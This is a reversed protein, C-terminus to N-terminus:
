YILNFIMEENGAISRGSINLLVVRHLASALYCYALCLYGRGMQSGFPYLPFPLMILAKTPSTCPATPVHSLSVKSQNPPNLFAKQFYDPILSVQLHTPTVLQLAPPLTSRSYPIAWTFTRPTPWLIAVPFHMQSSLALFHALSTFCLICRM